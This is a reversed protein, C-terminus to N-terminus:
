FEIDFKAKLGFGLSNYFKGFNPDNVNSQVDRPNFHNTLNFLAAGPRVRYTKKRFKVPFGKSIQLDLSLYDSFRGAQNRGGVFELRDNVASFPFGTRYEFLPAVRIDYPLEFQGYALVRHPSDFPQVAFENPRIAISPFESLTTDASNLDGKSSSWTYSLNWNGLKENVYSALMQLEVYRSRGTSNLLITGSNAGIVTPQLILDRTTRRQLYGFRLTLEKTIGRDVHVSWRFSRPSALDSDVQNLFTRPGDVITTGNAAFSTLRREPFSGLGSFYRVVPLVRDYFIGIGGRIVTKHDKKPTWLFSLRPSLNNGSNIGDRDFRLGLDFTLKDNLTWRDQIFSGVEFYNFRNEPRASFDVRQALTNDLRRLFVTNFRFISSINTRDVGFGAKLSHDGMLKFPKFYYTEMLQFRGTRRRTDAFYNGRNLDSMVTFPQSGQGFVDIDATKYSVASNLFSTNKFVAQESVSFLYGRQKTNPTTSAPNFTNLGVFRIKQPFLAFNFKLQNGKNVRVDIQTFSSFRETATNDFPKILDPAYDRRFRYEFSQLFFIRDKLIPGTFTIRPRFSDVKGSFFNHFTPFFRAFSVNFKEGGGKSQVNTVGGTFRGYESSYPDDEVAIASVAELPIEFAPEGSIPDTVDAGNVTYNSQGARSGKVYAKNGADKVVGPTLPLASQVDDERFPQTKLTEVRVINSTTTESTSLLGEEYKVTVSESLAVTLNFEVVLTVGTTVTLDQTASPLGAADATLRYKGVPINVFVFNGVEDSTTTVLYEALNINRLTLKANAVVTSQSDAQGSLAKVMGKIGGPVDAIGVSGGGTPSSLVSTSFFAVLVFVSLFSTVYRM